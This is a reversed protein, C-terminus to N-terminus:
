RFNGWIADLLYTKSWLGTSRLRTRIGIRLRQSTTGFPIVYVLSVSSTNRVHCAARATVRRDPAIEGVFMIGEVRGGDPRLLFVRNDRRELESEVSIQRGPFRGICAIM